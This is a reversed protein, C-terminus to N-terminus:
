RERLAMYKARLIPKLLYTLISKKGTQIDVTAVMGPIIPLPDDAMGLYNKKTRVQVLFFSHDQEDTISDASINELEAELGGYITFDYATFKVMAKQKPRLFAIDAPRVKAEVLLTDEMPVIEVLNMGPQIVGGVTNVLIQKITGSVPSRVQTRKLRDKLAVSSASLGELKALTDNLEEKAKNSFKLREQRLSLRAEQLKSRVKPISAKSIAIEGNMQSAQRDLHLMEVESVAGQAVLPKTLAMEQQLLAYTKTLENLKAQLEELEHERQTKQEQLIDLSSTLQQKRTTYLEHEARAIEPAEKAVDEPVIFGKGEAEAQLRAAKAKLALANLRNEEFSSSFRTQDIRLLLQDKKVVDGAKVLIESIIGGELNQVVQVRGSPIVKGQGRTYQEIESFSTWTLFTFFFIVVVWM